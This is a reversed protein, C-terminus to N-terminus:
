NQLIIALISCFQKRRKKVIQLDYVMAVNRVSQYLDGGTINNENKMGLEQLIELAAASNYQKGIPFVNENAFIEKLINRRPDYLDSAKVREGQKPVFPLTQLERKFTADKRILYRFCGLVFAILKDIQEESYKGQRIDPFIIESLLETPQLIKVNLFLALKRSDDQSIDILDRLPPIPMSELPAACFDDRKSVCRKALTEFVPLSCLLSNEEKGICGPRVNALFSRLVQRGRTPLRRRIIESFFGDASKSSVVMAKLVGGISPPYVFTGMVAPHSTVFTPCDTLLILGLNTLVNSVADDIYDDYFRKLVVRSPHCLRTLTLSVPTQWVSLPILPLNQFRQLEKESTFHKELYKWVVSLWDKPPHNKSKDNPFWRVNEAKSWDSPLARRLLVAIHDKCLLRLQTCEPFSFYCNAICSLALNAVQFRRSRAIFANNSTLFIYQCRLKEQTM